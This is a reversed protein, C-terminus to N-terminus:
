FQKDWLRLKELIAEQTRNQVEAVSGCADIATIREPSEHALKLYSERVRQHFDDGSRELRDLNGGVRELGVHPDIDFLITLDPELGNTAWVSLDRVEDLGLARAAGQYAVSSDIYRDELVVTGGELAPRIVNAVHYARDAAYLLAETRPDVDEPGHMVLARLQLGLKTGGPERTVLVPIGQESLLSSLLEIQTTKGSGDGGEFSIFIGPHERQGTANLATRFVQILQDSTDVKVNDSHSM